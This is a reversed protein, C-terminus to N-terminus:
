FTGTGRRPSAFQSTSFRTLDEAELILIWFYSLLKQLVKDYKNLRVYRRRISIWRTMNRVASQGSRLALDISGASNRTAIFTSTEASRVCDSM